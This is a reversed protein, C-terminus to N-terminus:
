KGKVEYGKSLLLDLLVNSIEVSDNKANLRSVLESFSNSFSIANQFAREGYEIQATGAMLANESVYTKRAL